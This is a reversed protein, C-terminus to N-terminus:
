SSPGSPGSDWGSHSSAPTVTSRCPAALDIVAHTDLVRRLLDAFYGSWRADALDYSKGQVVSPAFEPPAAATEEAHFFRTERVFICEIVPDDGDALGDPRYQAVRSRMQAFTTTGNAVDFMDWADSIPLPASGSYLGGGVIRNHPHHTKFFFPEGPAIAAFRRGGAPRWFNVEGGPPRDTLQRYWQADTVGVDARWGNTHGPRCSGRWVM